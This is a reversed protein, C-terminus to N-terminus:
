AALKVLQEIIDSANAGTYNTVMEGTEEILKALKKLGEYGDGLLNMHGVLNKLKTALGTSKPNEVKSQLEDRVEALLKEVEPNSTRAQRAADALYTALTQNIANVLEPDTSNINTITYNNQINTVSKGRSYDYSINTVSNILLKGDDSGSFVDFVENFAEQCRVENDFYIVAGSNSVPTVMIGHRRPPLALGCGWMIAYIIIPWIADTLTVGSYYSQSMAFYYAIYFVLPIASLFQALGIFKRNQIDEFCKKAYNACAMAGLAVFPAAVSLTANTAIALIIALAFQLLRIKGLHKSDRSSMGTMMEISSIYHGM